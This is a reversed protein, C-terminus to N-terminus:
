KRKNDFFAWYIGFGILLGYLTSLYPNATIPCTNTKCGIFFYYLYGAVAGVGSFILFRLRKM